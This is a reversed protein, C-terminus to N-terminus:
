RRVLLGLAFAAAATLALATLPKHAINESLEEAASAFTRQAKGSFQNVKGTAQLGEDGTLGGVADQVRGGFERAAGEFQNEDVM